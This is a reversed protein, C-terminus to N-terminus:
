RGVTKTLGNITSTLEKQEKNDSRLVEEKSELQEKLVNEVSNSQQLETKCEDLHKTLNSKAAEAESLKGWQNAIDSKTTDATGSSVSLLVYKYCERM